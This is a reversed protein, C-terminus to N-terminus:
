TLSSAKEPSSADCSVGYVRPNRSKPRPSGIIPSETASPATQQSSSEPIPFERILLSFVPFKKSKAQRSAALFVKDESTNRDFNGLSLFLSNQFVFLSNNQQLLSNVRLCWPLRETRYSGLSESM